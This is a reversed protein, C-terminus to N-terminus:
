CCKLRKADFSIENHQKKKMKDDTKNNNSNEENYQYFLLILVFMTGRGHDFEFIHLIHFRNFAWVNFLLMEFDITHRKYCSHFLILQAIVEIYENHTNKKKEFYFLLIMPNIKLKWKIKRYNLLNTKFLSCLVCMHNHTRYIRKANRAFSISYLLKKKRKKKWDFWVCKKNRRLDMLNFLSFFWFFNKKKLSVFTVVALEYKYNFM